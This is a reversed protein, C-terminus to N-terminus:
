FIEPASTGLFVHTQRTKKRHNHRAGSQLEVTHVGLDRAARCAQSEGGLDGSEPSKSSSLDSWNSSARVKLTGWFPPNLPRLVEAM